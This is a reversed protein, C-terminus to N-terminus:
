NSWGHVYAVVVVLNSQGRIWHKKMFIHLGPFAASTRSRHDDGLVSWKAGYGVLGINPDRCLAVILCIDRHM